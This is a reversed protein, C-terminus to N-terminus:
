KNDKLFKIALPIKELVDSASMGTCGIQERVLEGANSHIYVGLPAAVEMDLGQALLGAIIGALVDGTGASALGPNPFPNITVNGMPSAVVTHAGKLVVIKEWRASSEAAIKARDGEVAGISLASLRSMEGPHPTVIARHPFREWWARNRSCSLFNLADADIVAPPLSVGSFLLRELMDVTASNRGMGCGVLLSDYNDLQNIILGVADPSFVGPSSEPLPIYTPETAKAALPNLISEPIALTVLGAGSRIAAMAALYAAGIFQQSGVVMLAKGFMGKHANIPRLPMALSAWKQTLLEFSVNKDLGSPIGIEVVDINGSHLAGPFNYLGTKPYGLSISLDAILTLPDVAGSTADMGSPIDLALVMLNNHTKKVSAVTALIKAIDGEVVRNLGIGILADVIMHASKMQKLLMKLSDDDSFHIITAGQDRATKLMPDEIDRKKCVYATVFIGWSSLHKATVLGDSGNNGPGILIVVSPNEIASLHFKIREAVALGANEILAGPSVGSDLSLKEIKRMQQSTVIKM